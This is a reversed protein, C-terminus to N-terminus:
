ARVVVGCMFMYISRERKKKRKEMVEDDHSSCFTMM